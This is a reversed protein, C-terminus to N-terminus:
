QLLQTSLHFITLLSTIPYMDLSESRGSLYLGVRTTQVMMSSNMMMCSYVGEEGPSFTGCLYLNIVGPYIRTNAGRVEIVPSGCSIRVPIQAGNFHWGGLITNVDSGPGLGSACRIFPEYPDPVFDNNTFVSYDDLQNAAVLDNEASGGINSVVAVGLLTLLSTIIVCYGLLMYM